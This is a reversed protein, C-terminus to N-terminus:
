LSTRALRLGIHRYRTYPWHAARAASRCNRAYDAWGGGRYARYSGLASGTPDTVDGSYAELWDWCWERLNGHMDQLGWANASKGGCDHTTGSTNGCYWGVLDLGPDDGCDYASNTIPGNCFATTSTARCAYEWEAETLLRYGNAAQNWTVTAGTIHNGDMTAGTITYAPTYGDRASRQNCYSVAVYWTVTEVPKGTGQFYSENWGMVSQWESQTVEYISVYIARTLTVQHQTENDFRGPENTPSGMTFTGAPIRVMGPPPISQCPNPDCDGAATWTGSCAPQMTVTCTNDSACCSGTTPPQPCPNPSCSTWESHWLSATACDAQTTMTCTGAPACCAGSPPPQSCTNPTCVGGETWTDSCAVQTTVTCTGAPACCSGTVPPQETATGSCVMSGCAAAGLGVTCTQLGTVTPAFRVAITKEQGAALSYSGAGPQISYAPCDEAVEGSLTGGGTSKITFTLDSSGGVPVTGFSLNTPTVECVPGSQNDLTVPVSDVKHLHGTDYATASIRRPGNVPDTRSDWNIQYPASTATGLLRQASGDNITFEVRGIGVNDTANATITIAGSIVSGSAPQTVQVVPPVSDGDNAVHITTSVTTQNGAYDFAQAEVGRYDSPFQNSDWTVSFRSSTATGVTRPTGYVVKFVVREVGVNDTATAALTITGTVVELYGPSTITVSPPQTDASVSVTRTTENRLGGSDTVRLRITPTGVVSFRHRALPNGVMTEEFSGDNNWDWAFTLTAVPHDADQSCSADFQFETGQMGSPPSAAFCASTTQVPTGTGTCTLDACGSSGLALSCQQAGTVTPAFRVTVQKSQGAGLSYSGTGSTVSFVGCGAGVSGTLTGTGSNKITFTLDTTQGIQLNGFALQTPTVECRPNSLVNDIRFSMERYWAEVGASRLYYMRLRVAGQYSPLDAGSDWVFNRSGPPVGAIKKGGSGYPVLTGASTEVMTAYKWDGSGTADYRATWDSSDGERDALNYSIRVRGASTGPPAPLTLAPDENPPPGTIEISVRASGTKGRSDTVQCTIEQVGTGLGAYTFDAGTGFRGVRISTWTVGAPTFTAGSAVTVESRFRVSGGAAGRQGATPSLIRVTPDPYSETPIEGKTFRNSEFTGQHYPDLTLHVFGDNYWVDIKVFFKDGAAYPDLVTKPAFRSVLDTFFPERLYNENASTISFISSKEFSWRRPDLSTTRYVVERGYAKGMKTTSGMGPEWTGADLSMGTAGPVWDFEPGDRWYDRWFLRKVERSYIVEDAQFGRDRKLEIKYKVGFSFPSGGLEQLILIWGNRGVDASPGSFRLWDGEAWVFLDPTAYWAEPHLKPTVRLPSFHRIASVLFDGDVVTPLRVVSDGEATALELDTPLLGEPLSLGAIPIRVAVPEAFTLGTPELEYLPGVCLTHLYADPSAAPDKKTITIPTTQSVAGAPFEAQLGGDFSVVTASGPNLTSM